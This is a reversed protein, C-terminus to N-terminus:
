RGRDYVQEASRAVAEQIGGTAQYGALTLTRGERRQWTEQLAHSMMPLAGPELEVEHM